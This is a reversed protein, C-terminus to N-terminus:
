TAAFNSVTKAKVFYLGGIKKSFFKQWAMVAKGGARNIATEDKGYLAFFYYFLGRPMDAM